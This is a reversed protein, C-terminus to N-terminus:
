LRVYPQGAEIIACAADEGILRATVYNAGDMCGLARLQDKGVAHRLPMLQSFYILARDETTSLTAIDEATLVGRRTMARDLVANRRLATRVVQAVAVVAGRGRRQQQSEYFFIIAGSTVAALTRPSGIYLKEHWMSAETKPLLSLQDATGLLQDAFARRIPIVAIPREPLLAVVPGFQVEFALLPLAQRGASGVGCELVTAPGSYRPPHEPLQLGIAKALAARQTTWNHPTLVSGICRKEFHSPRNQPGMADCGRTRASNCFWPSHTNGQLLLVAPRNSCIDRTMREILVDAALEGFPHQPALALWGTGLSHPPRPPEWSAFAIPAGAACVLVRHRPCAAHGARLSQAIQEESWSCSRLFREATKRQVESLDAVSLPTGSASTAELHTPTWQHPFYLEALETPGIVDIGYQRYLDDRSRLIAADSTVFGAAGYHITTAVHLIDSRERIRLESIQQRRPFILRSLAETRPEHILGPVIPFQPLATALRLIPDIDPEQAARTLEHIFEATAFLRLIGSLAATLLRRAADARERDKVIDLFVNVDLVYIPHEPTRILDTGSRDDVNSFLTPTRLERQRINIRRGTTIGGEETRVTLFGAREWFQNAPLDAAVRASITLYSHHEGYRVLHEVLRHGVHKGQLAPEVYVQFVKLHPFRGGFLLHGGYREARGDGVTAIYLKGQAAAELYASRPLFGLADRQGDARAAATEAFTSVESLADYIKIDVDSAIIVAPV